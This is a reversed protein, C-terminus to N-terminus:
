ICLDLPLDSIDRLRRGDVLMALTDESDSLKLSTVVQRLEHLAFHYVCDLDSTGLALSAIRGPLPEGTVSMIHPVRGKRNRILNLAESRANQARDSRLTWKCSISAHILPAASNKMRLPSYCTDDPGFLFGVANLREEPEPQRHIVIDPTILYEAGLVARLEASAAAAQALLDLHAFQQFRSIGKQDSAQLHEVTWLGPRLREMFLFTRQLYQACITEFQKGASQGALKDGQLPTGLSEALALAIRISSKNGNDANSAIGNKIVLVKRLLAAQLENRANRVMSLMMSM